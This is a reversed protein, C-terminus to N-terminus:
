RTTLRMADFDEFDALTEEPWFFKPYPNHEGKTRAKRDLTSEIGTHQVLSPNHVWEKWGERKMADFVAGDICRWGRIPDMPKDVIVQSKLLLRLADRSFVLAMAGKGRYPSPQWGASLELPPNTPRRLYLNWYGKEPYACTELFQRTNRCILIDDQFLAFRDAEPDRLYLEWLALLWTGFVKCGREEFIRPEFGGAKLSALTNPLLDNRQACTTLGVAWNM